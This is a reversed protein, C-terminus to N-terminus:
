IKEKTSKKKKLDGEEELGRLARQMLKMNLDQETRREQQIHEPEEQLAKQM